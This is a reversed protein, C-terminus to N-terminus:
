KSLPDVLSLGSRVLIADVARVQAQNILVYDTDFTGIAIIPIGADALPEAIRRLIGVADFPLPGLVQLATWGREAQIGDPVVAGACVISLEHDTRTVSTFGGTPLWNPLPADADLRCVALDDRLWQYRLSIM